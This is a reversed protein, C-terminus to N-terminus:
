MYIYADRQRERERQRKRVESNQLQCAASVVGGTDLVGLLELLGLVSYNQRECGAQAAGDRVM